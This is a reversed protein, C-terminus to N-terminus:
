VSMKWEAHGDGKGERWKRWERVTSRGDAGDGEDNMMDNMLRGSWMMVDMDNWRDRREEEGVFEGLGDDSM